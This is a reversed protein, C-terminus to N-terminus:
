KLTVSHFNAVVLDCQLAMAHHESSNRHVWLWKRSM